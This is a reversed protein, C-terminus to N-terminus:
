YRRIGSWSWPRYYPYRSTQSTRILMIFFLILGIDIKHKLSRVSRMLLISKILKLVQADLSFIKLSEVEVLLKNRILSKLKPFKYLGQNCAGCFYNLSGNKKLM